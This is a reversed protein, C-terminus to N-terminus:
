TPVKRSSWTQFYRPVSLYKIKSLLNVISVVYHIVNPLKDTIDVNRYISFRTSRGSIDGVFRGNLIRALVLKCIELLLKGNHNVELFEMTNRKLPIDPHSIDDPVPIHQDLEDGEIYDFANNPIYANFDGLLLIDGKTMFDVIKDLAILCFTM